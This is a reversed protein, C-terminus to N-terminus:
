SEVKLVNTEDAISDRSPHRDRVREGHFPKVSQFLEKVFLGRAV